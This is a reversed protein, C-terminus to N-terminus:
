LEIGARAQVGLQYYHKIERMETVLDAREILEQPAKRGTFVLEVHEPKVDIVSLLDDTSFLKFYHAVNAEDLIVVDYKGSAVIEKMERLAEQAMAIDEATPDGRIFCGRGYQKITIADGFRELAGIEAYDMGKIFQGIFVRLGAGAARVALGIAATTKGKGDGTYVQVYGRSLNM